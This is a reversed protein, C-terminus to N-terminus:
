VRLLEMSLWECVCRNWRYRSVGVGTWEVATCGGCRESCCAVCVGKGGRDSSVQHVKVESDSGLEYVKWM